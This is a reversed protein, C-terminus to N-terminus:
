GYPSKFDVGIRYFLQNDDTLVLAQGYQNVHIDIAFPQHTDPYFKGSNQDQAMLLHWEVWNSGEPNNRHVDTRCIVQLFLFTWAFFPQLLKPLVKKSSLLQCVALSHWSSHANPSISENIEFLSDGCLEIIFNLRPWWWMASLLCYLSWLLQANWDCILQWLSSRFLCKTLNSSNFIYSWTLKLLGNAGVENLSAFLSLLPEM